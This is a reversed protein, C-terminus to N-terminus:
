VEILDLSIDIYGIINGQKDRRFIDCKRDGVYMEKTALGDFEPLVLNFSHIFNNTSITQETGDSATYFFRFMEDAKAKPLYKWKLSIKSLDGRVISGVVRGKTNRGSNVVTSTQISYSSPTPLAYNGSYILPTVINGNSLRETVNAM